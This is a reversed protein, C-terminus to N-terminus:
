SVFKYIYLGKKVIEEWIGIERYMITYKSYKINLQLTSLFQLLLKHAYSIWIAESCAALSASSAASLSFSAALSSSFCFAAAAVLPLPLSLFPLFLLLGDGLFPLPLVGGGCGVGGGRLYALRQKKVIMLLM